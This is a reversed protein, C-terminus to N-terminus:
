SHAVAPLLQTEDTKSLIRVIEDRSLNYLELFRWAAITGHRTDIARAIVDLQLPGLPGLHTIIM